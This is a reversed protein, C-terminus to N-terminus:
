CSPRRACGDPSIPAHRPAIGLEGEHLLLRPVHAGQEGGLDRSVAHEFEGLAGGRANAGPRHQGELHVVGRVAVLRLIARGTASPVLVTADDLLLFTLFTWIPFPRRLRLMDWAFAALVLGATYYLFVQPDFALRVAVGVLALDGRAEGPDVRAAPREGPALPDEVRGEPFPEDEGAVRRPPVRLRRHAELGALLANERAELRAEYTSDLAQPVASASIAGRCGVGPCAAM